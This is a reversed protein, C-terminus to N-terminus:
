QKLAPASGFGLPIRAATDTEVVFDQVNDGFRLGREQAFDILTDLCALPHITHPSTVTYSALVVALDLASGLPADDTKGTRPRLLPLGAAIGSIVGGLLADGAGATSAVAVVPAPCFNWNNNAFALVGRRGLSVILHLDPCARSLFALCDKAISEPDDGSFFSGLMEAAESENVALLDLIQLMGSERAEALEASVFSAVCLAGAEHAVRLFHQRTSLPAEPVSLAITRKGDGGWLKIVKDLDKDSLEAAASNNTTLNGGAGDPYQFCVSFLTPKDPLTEIFRTDIGVEQMEQMVFRAPADNGVKALPLIEFGSGNKGAGLLRAVYHIVIHLKCYDRVDLLEGARSENRGLTQDGALKFFVGTGVGGVGILREYPSSSDIRLRRM